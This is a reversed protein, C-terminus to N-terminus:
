FSVSSPLLQAVVQASAGGMEVLVASKGQPKGIRLSEIFVERLDPELIRGLLQNLLFWSYVGERRGESPFCFAFLFCFATSLLCAICAFLNYANNHNNPNNM